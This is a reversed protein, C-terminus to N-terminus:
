VRLQVLSIPNETYSFSQHPCLSECELTNANDRAVEQFRVRKIPRATDM